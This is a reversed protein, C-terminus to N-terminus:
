FPPRTMVHQNPEAENQPTANTGTTETTETEGSRGTPNRPSGNRHIRTTRTANTDASGADATVVETPVRPITPEVTAQVRQGTYRIEIPGTGAAVTAETTWPQYEPATVSLQLSDGVSVDVPLTVAAGNLRVTSGAPLETINLTRSPV